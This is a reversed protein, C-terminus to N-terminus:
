LAGNDTEPDKPRQGESDPGDTEPGAAQSPLAGRLALLQEESAKLAERYLEQHKRSGDRDGTRALALSLQYHAKASSPDSAVADQLLDRAEAFRQERMRVMGLALKAMPHGPDARLAREAHEQAADFRSLGVQSDAMAAAAEANNPDLLLARALVEAATEYRKGRNLTLGLAIHSLLHDPRGEVCRTLIQEAEPLLGVQMRAVGLFYPYDEDEPVMRILEELPRLAAAPQKAALTARGYLALLEESNPARELADRLTALAPEFDGRQLLVTALRYRAHVSDFSEVAQRWLAEAAALHGSAVEAEALFNNLDRDLPGLKAAQRLIEAADGRRESRLYLRALNLRPGLASPDGTVAQRFAAEAEAPRGGRALVVGWVDLVAPHPAGQSGSQLLPQLLGAASEVDGRQLAARAQELPEAVAAPLGTETAQGETPLALMAPLVACVLLALVLRRGAPIRIM